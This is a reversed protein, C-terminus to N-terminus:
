MRYEVGDVKATWTDTFRDIVAEFLFRESVGMGEVIIRMELTRGDSQDLFGTLIFQGKEHFDKSWTNSFQTNAYTELLNSGDAFEILSLDLDKFRLIGKSGSSVVSIEESSVRGNLVNDVLLISLEKVHVLDAEKVPPLDGSVHQHSKGGFGVLACSCVTLALLAVAVVKSLKYMARGGRERRYWFVEKSDFYVLVHYM